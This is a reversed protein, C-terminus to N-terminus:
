VKKYKKNYDDISFKKKAYIVFKEKFYSENKESTLSITKKEEYKIIKTAYEKLNKCFNKLCDNGRIIAIIITNVKQQISFFVYIIM